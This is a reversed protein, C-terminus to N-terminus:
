EGQHRDNRSARSRPMEPSKTKENLLSLATLQDTILVHVLGGLLAGHIAARKQEGGAVGVVHNIRKLQELTIGIVRDDLESQLPLGDQDFFRLAIDGVAGLSLLYKLDEQNMITGHRMLLADEIPAGIGVYAVNIQNFLDFVHQMHSDSLLARKVEQNDVIGPAHLLALRSNIFQSVRRCLSTAHVEVEPLDVGGIMQVVQVGTSDQPQLANVMANLTSGWSIGIVDGDSLTRHFYSAAASGVERSVADQSHPDIVEVVIAEKLGYKVELQEELDTYMGLPTHVIFQVIGEDRAQQLLRSVKPRSIHLKESIDQQTLERHYYLKSVKSMLRLDAIQPKRPM